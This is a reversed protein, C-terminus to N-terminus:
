RTWPRTSAAWLGSSPGPTTGDSSAQLSWGVPMASITLLESRLSNSASAASIPALLLGSVLTLIATARTILKTGM